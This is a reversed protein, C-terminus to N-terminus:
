VDPQPQGQDPASSGSPGKSEPPAKPLETELLSGVKWEGDEVTMPMVYDKGEKGHYLAYGRSGDTRLADIPGTLTIVRVSAPAGKALATLDATCTKASSGSEIEKVVAASLTKCQGAYDGAARSTESETLIASAQELDDADAEEGFKVATNKSGPRLFERSPEASSSTEGAESTGNGTTLDSSGGCGVIVAIIVLAVIAALVKSGRPDM